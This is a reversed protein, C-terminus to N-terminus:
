PRGPRGPAAPHPRCPALPSPELATCGAAARARRSAALIVPRLAFAPAPTSCPALVFKSEWGAGSADRLAALEEADAASLERKVAKIAETNGARAAALLGPANPMAGLVYCPPPKPDAPHLPIGPPAQPRGVLAGGIGWAASQLLAPLRAAILACAAPRAFQSSPQTPRPCAGEAPPAAAAATTVFRTPDCEAVKLVSELGSPKCSCAVSELLPRELKIHVAAAGAGDM